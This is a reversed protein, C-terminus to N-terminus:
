PQERTRWCHLVSTTRSRTVSSGAGSRNGLAHHGNSTGHSYRQLYRLIDEQNNRAPVGSPCWAPHVKSPVEYTGSLTGHRTWQFYWYHYMQHGNIPPYKKHVMHPVM